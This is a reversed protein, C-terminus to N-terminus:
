LFIGFLFRASCINIILGYVNSIFLTQKSVLWDGLFHSSQLFNVVPRRSRQLDGSWDDAVGVVVNVNFNLERAPTRSMFHQNLKRPTSKTAKGIPFLSVIIWSPHWRWDDRFTAKALHLQCSSGHKQTMRIGGNGRWEEGGTRQVLVLLRISPGVCHPM